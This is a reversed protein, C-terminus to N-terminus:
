VRAASDAGLKLRFIHSYKLLVLSSLKKMFMDSAGAAQARELADHMAEMRANKGVAPAGHGYVDDLLELSRPEHEYKDRLRRRWEFRRLKELEAVAVDGSSHNAAKSRSIKKM